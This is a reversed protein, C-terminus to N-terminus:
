QRGHVEEGKRGLSRWDEERRKSSNIGRAEFTSYVFTRSYETTPRHRSSFFPLFKATGADESSCPRGIAGVHTYIASNYVVSVLKRIKVRVKFYYRLESLLERQGDHEAWELANKDECKIVIEKEFQCARRRCINKVACFECVRSLEALSPDNAEVRAQSIRLLSM